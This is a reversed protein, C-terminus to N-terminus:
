RQALGALGAGAEGGDLVLEIEQFGLERPQRRPLFHSADRKADDEARRPQDDPPDLQERAPLPEDAGARVTSVPAAAGWVRSCPAMQAPTVATVNM